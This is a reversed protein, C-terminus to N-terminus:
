FNRFHDHLATMFNGSFIREPLKNWDDVTRPFYSFKFTNTRAFFPSLSHSHTHRTKRTTSPSIFPTPSLGTKCKILSEMFALRAIQRRIHLPQIKNLAMIGSPSDSRKYKNYIFRVARRQVKELENINKNTHPDWVVAAYELKPRIISNYALLKVNSPTGRLKHRLLGLKKLASSTVQQVHDNWDLRSNLVIGLYKFKSVEEILTNKIKYRFTIPNRKRTIRLLVTKTTSIKMGWKDCWSSIDCLARDLRHQDSASQVETYIMIDDAFMGINVTDGVVSVLDNVYLLFLLPGLVSGQPVGSTVTLSSSCTGDIDVFQTRDKLYSNVWNVLTSPIGAQKLKLLLSGHPVRDFAKSLDLFLVDIQGSHDLISSFSHVATVLQTVTSFGRRFGHQFPSLTKNKELVNLIHNAVIHEIMKCCCCTLSIPRYNDVHFRDGNKFVPIVRAMLWDHPLVSTRFSERFIVTLFRALSEAYRRLFANPIEDPGTTCKPDLRLLMEFVGEFSVLEIQESHAEMYFEDGQDNSFVSHFFSNFANAISLRSTEMKGDVLLQDVSKRASRIHNWFKGPDNLIFQPLSECFYRKRASKVSSSLKSVLRNLVDCDPSRTKKIRKIRRKLHIIDRNIWPNVRKTRKKKDPIFSKLCFKCHEKFMEWLHRVDNGQFSKYAIDLYDLVSEDRARSYDKVDTHKVGALRKKPELFVNTVVVKHDSIGDSVHFSYDSFSRDLFVLDLVSRATGCIRTPELVVQNLNHTLMIDSLIDSHEAAGVCGTPWDIGPLNIDGVLMLRTKRFSFLHDQLKRLYSSDSSPPRYLACLVFTFSSFTIKLLLSEHDEIQNLVVAKVNKKLLVAVGGGRSGRDRRFVSFSLPFVCDDTIDSTLWTETIVAVDPNHALLAIELSQSKNVVSQANM